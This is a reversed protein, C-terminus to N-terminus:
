RRRRRVFVDRAAGMLVALVAVGDGSEEARGGLGAGIAAGAAAPGLGLLRAEEGEVVRGGGRDVRVKGVSAAVDRAVLARRGSGHRRAAARTGVKLLLLLLLVLLRRVLLLVLRLLAIIRAARDGGVAAPRSRWVAALRILFYELNAALQGVNGAVLVVGVQAGDALGPGRLENGGGRGDVGETACVGTAAGLAAADAAGPRVAIFAVGFPLRGRIALVVTETVVTAKDIAGGVNWDPLSAAAAVAEGTGGNTAGGEGSAGGPEIAEALAVAVRSGGAALDVRAEKARLVRQATEDRRQRIVWTLLIRETVSGLRLRLRM